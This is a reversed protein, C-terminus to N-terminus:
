AHKNLHNDFINLKNFMLSTINFFNILYCEGNLFSKYYVRVKFLDFSSESYNKNTSFVKPGGEGM